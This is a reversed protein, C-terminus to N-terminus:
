KGPNKIEGIGGNPIARRGSRRITLGHVPFLEGLEKCADGPTRRAAGGIDDVSKDITHEFIKFPGKSARNSM